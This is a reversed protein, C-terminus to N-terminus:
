SDSSKGESDVVQGIRQREVVVRSEGSKITIRDDKLHVVQGILGGSTIIEDGKKLKGLREKLRKQQQRQPRILLFYFIAVIAAMQIFFIFMGGGAPRGAQMVVMLNFYTV